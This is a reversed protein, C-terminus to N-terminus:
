IIKTVIKTLNGFNNNVLGQWSENYNINNVSEAYQNGAELTALQNQIKVADAKQQVYFYISAVGGLIALILTENKM